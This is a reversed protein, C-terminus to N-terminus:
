IESIEAWLAELDPDDLAMLKLKKSDGAEFAKELWKRAAKPNGLQCEYSALNYAIMPEGPLKQQARILIEKAALLGGKRRHATAYALSIWFQPMRPNVHCLGKALLAVMDWNEAKVYIQLQIEVVDTHTRAGSAIKRLETDAERWDGLELWGVAASLHYIDPPELSKVASYKWVRSSACTIIFRKASKRRFFM